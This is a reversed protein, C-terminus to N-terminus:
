RVFRVRDISGDGDLRYIAVAHLDGDPRGTVREEDVVYSGVRIRSVIEAKLDPFDAFVRGYQERMDAHGSMLVGGEADEIVITEAYCAVFADVDHANYARAQREVADEMSKAM